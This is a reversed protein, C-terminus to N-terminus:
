GVGLASLARALRGDAAGAAFAAAGRVPGHAACHRLVGAVLAAPVRDAPVGALAGRLLAALAAADAGRARALGELGAGLDLQKAGAKVCCLDLAAVAADRGVPALAAAEPRDVLAIRGDDQVVVNNLILDGHERCGPLGEA